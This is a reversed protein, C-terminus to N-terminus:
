QQAEWWLLVGAKTLLAWQAMCSSLRSCPNGHRLDWVWFRMLLSFLVGLVCLGKCVNTFFEVSVGVASGLEVSQLHRQTHTPPHRHKHTPFVWTERVSLCWADDQNLNRIIKASKLAYRAWVLLRLSHLTFSTSCFLNGSTSILNQTCSCSKCICIYTYVTYVYLM